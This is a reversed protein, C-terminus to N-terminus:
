GRFPPRSAGRRRPEGALPRRRRGGDGVRHDVIHGPAHDLPERETGGFLHLGDDLLDHRADRFPEDALFDIADPPLPCSAPPLLFVSTPIDSPNSALWGIVRGSLGASSPSSSLHFARHCSAPVYRKSRRWERASIKEISVGGGVTLPESWM